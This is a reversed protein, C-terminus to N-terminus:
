PTFSFLQTDTTSINLGASNTIIKFSIGKPEEEQIISDTLFPKSLLKKHMRVALKKSPAYVTTIIHDNIIKHTACFIKSSQDNAKICKEREKFSQVTDVTTRMGMTGKYILMLTVVLVWLVMIIAIKVLPFRHWEQNNDDIM